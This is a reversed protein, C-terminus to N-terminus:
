KSRVCKKESIGAFGLKEQLPGKILSILKSGTDGPDNKGSVM